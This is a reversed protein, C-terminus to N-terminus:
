SLYGSTSNSSQITTRNTINQPVEMFTFRTLWETMDLEKLTWPRYGVLSRQGHFEGPLSIPIPLWGRRWPINGLWPNSRPIWCQLCTRWLRLWWLFWWVTEWIPQYEWCYHMLTGKEVCGWWCKNRTKQSTAMGAPTLYRGTATIQMESIILPTSGAKM